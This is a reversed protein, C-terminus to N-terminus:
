RVRTRFTSSRRTGDPLVAVLHWALEDGSAVTELAAAPVEYELSTLGRSQHLRETLDGTMVTVDYVTGEPGGSWTLEFHDRPLSAGAVPSILLHPATASRQVPAQTWEGQEAPQREMEWLGVGVALVVAAAAAVLPARMRRWPGAVVTPMADSAPRSQREDERMERQLAAAMRWDEACAACLAVHDVLARREEAPLEGALAAWLRDPDPHEGLLAAPAPVEFGRRLTDIRKTDQDIM